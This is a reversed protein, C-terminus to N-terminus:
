SQYSIGFPRGSLHYCNINGSATRPFEKQNLAEGEKGMQHAPIPMKMERHGSSGLQSTELPHEWANILIHATSALVGM